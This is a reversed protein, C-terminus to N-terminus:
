LKNQDDFRLVEFQYDRLRLQSVASSLVNEFQEVCSLVCSAQGFNIKFILFYFNKLFFRKVVGIFYTQRAMFEIHYVLLIQIEIPKLQVHNFYM